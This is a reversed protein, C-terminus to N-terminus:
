KRNKEELETGYRCFLSIVLIMLGLILGGTARIELSEVNGYKRLITNHLVSTCAYVAVPEIIAIIGLTRLKKVCEENFPTGKEIELTFYSSAYKSLFIEGLATVALVASLGYLTELTYPAGDPFIDDITKGAKLANHIVGSAVLFAIFLIISLVFVLSSLIRGLTHLRQVTTLPNKM